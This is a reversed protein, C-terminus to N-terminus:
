LIPELDQNHLLISDSKKDQQYVIIATKSDKKIALVGAAQLIATYFPPGYPVIAMTYKSANHKKKLSEEM